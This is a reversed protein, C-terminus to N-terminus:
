GSVNKLTTDICCLKPWILYATSKMSSLIVKILFYIYFFIKDYLNGVSFPLSASTPGSAREQNNRYHYKPGDTPAAITLAHSTSLM